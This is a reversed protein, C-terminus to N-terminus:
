LAQRVAPYISVGTVAGSLPRSEKSPVRDIAIGDSPRLLSQLRRRRSGFDGIVISHLRHLVFIRSNGIIKDKTPKFAIRGTGEAPVKETPRWVTAYHCHM